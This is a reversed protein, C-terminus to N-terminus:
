AKKILFAFCTSPFGDICLKIHNSDHGWQDRLFASWDHAFPPLDIFRDMPKAGVDFSLPAVKHGAATLRDFLQQFHKRQFLVTGWNDITENDNSFNYETTHIAIGGSKLTKLSNTIFDLGKQISGLHELACVSWCFDYDQLDSPIDNMDVYRLSVNADFTPRDVLYDCYVKDLSATHQGTQAWGESTRNDPALDTVTVGIGKSAFYSPLPEEGCGFGLGRRGPTMMGNEWIGQLVYALEWIKRHFVVPIKLQGCWHAVWESEIDEQKSASSHLGVHAATTNTRIPLEAALKRALEYGFFKINLHAADINRSIQWLPNFNPHGKSDTLKLMERMFPDLLRTDALLSKFQDSISM